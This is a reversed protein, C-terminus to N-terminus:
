FPPPAPNRLVFVYCFVFVVVSLALLYNFIDLCCVLGVICSERPSAQATQLVKQCVLIKVSM